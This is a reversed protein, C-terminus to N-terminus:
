KVESITLVYNDSDFDASLDITYDNSKFTAQVDDESIKFNKEVQDFDAYDSLISYVQQFEDSDRLNCSYLGVDVKILPATVGLATTVFEETKNM